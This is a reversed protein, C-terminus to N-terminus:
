GTLYTVTVGAVATTSCYALIPLVFLLCCMCLGMCLKLMGRIKLKALKCILGGLFQGGAAGPVALGGPYLMSLICCKLEILTIIDKITIIILRHLSKCDYPIMDKISYMYM